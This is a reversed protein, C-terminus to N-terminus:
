ALRASPTIQKPDTILELVALRKTEVARQLAPAFGATTTVREAYAGCSQAFLVFNPNVLTTGIVRGPFHREQHMRITGYMGNNVLLVIVAAGAEHATALEQSYMQFCGDGALCVVPREPHRLKAAIAAPLGYGMAGSTPALQTGPKRFRHFRHGWVTYNGAGNTIIADPGLAASLGAIVPGLEVPGDKPAAPTTFVEFRARAAERWGTWGPAPLRIADLLSPYEAPRLNIALDPQYVRGLEDPDAHVHILKQVPYPAEILAYANTTIEGLRSGLVLLVDADRVRQALEPDIGLTLHGAYNPSDNDFIDQRRFSCAVPLDNAVAFEALSARAADTWGSAGIVVLPREAQGLMQRINAVADPSAQNLAVPGPPAVAIDCMDALVNEPLGLVVPGPRGSVAVRFARAVFEPVRQAEPIEAAWKATAGFLAHVDIEQFVEREKFGQKHLGIFLIMPTSDQFATHLGISAHTAGPGRTVFCIGPRGTLKGDAEAMNAAAGEHRAIVLRIASDYLADMVDLYSEGPVGYALTVGRASLSEVLARAGSRTNQRTEGNPGTMRQEDM